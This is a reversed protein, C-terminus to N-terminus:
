SIRLKDIRNIIEDTKLKLTALTTLLEEESVPVINLMAGQPCVDLCIYCQKCKTVDVSAAGYKISIAGTPCNQACLGCGLCLERKIKLM